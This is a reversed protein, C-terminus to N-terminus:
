KNLKNIRTFARELTARDDEIKRREQAMILRTREIGAKDNEIQVRDQELGKKLSVFRKEQESTEKEWQDYRKTFSILVEQFKEQSEKLFDTNQTVLQLIIKAGEYNNQIDDIVSKSEQYLEDIREIVKKERSLIYETEEKKLNFLINKAESIHINTDALAKVSDMQQKSIRKEVEQHTHEPKTKIVPVEVVIDEVIETPKDQGKRKKIELLKNKAESAIMNSEALLRVQEMEEKTTITEIM